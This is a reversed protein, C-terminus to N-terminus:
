RLPLFLNLNIIGREGVAVEMKTALAAYRIIYTLTTGVVRHTAVRGPLGGRPKRASRALTPSASAPGLIVKRVEVLRSRIRM